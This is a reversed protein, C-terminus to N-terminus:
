LTSAELSLPAQRVNERQPAYDAWKMARDLYPSFGRIAEMIIDQPSKKQDGKAAPYNFAGKNAVVWEKIARAQTLTVGSKEFFVANFFPRINKEEADYFGAHYAYPMAEESAKQAADSMFNVFEVVTSVSLGLAGSEKSQPLKGMIATLYLLRARPTQERAHTSVAAQSRFNEPIAFVPEALMDKRFFQDLGKILKELSEQNWNTQIHKQIYFKLRPVIKDFVNKAQRLSIGAEQYFKAAYAARAESDRTYDADMGDPLTAAAAVGAKTLVQTMQLMDEYKLDMGAATAADKNLGWLIGAVYQLSARTAAIDKKVAISANIQPTGHM